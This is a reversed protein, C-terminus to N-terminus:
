YTPLRLQSAHLELHQEVPLISTEEHIQQTNSDKMCGAAICLAINQIIQLKNTDSIIPLWISSGYDVTTRTIATYTKLLTEM